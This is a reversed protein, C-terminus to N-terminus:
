AATNLQIVEGGSKLKDLYDAWAQMMVVREELWKTRDYAGGHAGQKKHSLQCEIVESDFRLRERLMTRAMARFGHGTLEEQTDIGMRRLAANIAADSMPRKPDRGGPFVYELHGSHPKMEEILAVAQTSLPVLHSERMKMRGRPLDWLKGDLDLEEWRMMRLEIPRAFVLPALHLAVRVTHSGSFADFMRLVEGVHKPDTVSAHHKTVHATLAGNLSPTPDFKARGTAVAYRMVMGIVQKVRKATSHKGRSEIKRLAELVAPAAIDAVPLAGLSPVAYLDLRKTVLNTYKASWGPSQKKLWEKAVVDFTNGAREVKIKKDIQKQLSPDVGKALLAKAEDRKIRADALSVAPFAGFSVRKEAGNFTYKMRWLKGGSPSVEVYLGAGDFMRYPKDKPKANKIQLPSLPLIKRPM